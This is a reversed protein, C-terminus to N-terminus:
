QNSVAPRCIAKTCPTRAPSTAVFELPPPTFRRVSWARGVSAAIAKKIATLEAAATDYSMM